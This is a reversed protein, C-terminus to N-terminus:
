WAGRLSILNDTIFIRLRLVTTQKPVSQRKWHVEIGVSFNWDRNSFSVFLSFRRAMLNEYIPPMCIFLMLHKVQRILSCIMQFDLREGALGLNYRKTRGKSCFSNWKATVEHALYNLLQGDVSRFKRKPQACIIFFIFLFVVEVVVLRIMNFVTTSM